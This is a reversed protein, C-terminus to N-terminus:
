QDRHDSRETAPWPTALVVAEGFSAADKVTGARANGGPSKVLEQIKAGQPNRAGFVIEHGKGAWLKGLAGGVNGSGIVGIKM